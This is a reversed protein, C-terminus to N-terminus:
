EGKRQRQSHGGEGFCGYSVNRCVHKSTPGDVTHKSSVGVACIKLLGDVTYESPAEWLMNHPPRERRIKVPGGVTFTSPAERLVSQHAEWHM